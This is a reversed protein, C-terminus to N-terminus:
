RPALQQAGSSPAPLRVRPWVELRERLKPAISLLRRRHALREGESRRQFDEALRRSAPVTPEKPLPTEEKSLQELCLSGVGGVQPPLGHPM